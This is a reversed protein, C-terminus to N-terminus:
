SPATTAEAGFNVNNDITQAIRQAKQKCSTLTVIDCLYIGQDITECWIIEDCVSAVIPIGKEFEQSVLPGLGNDRGTLIALLGSFVILM